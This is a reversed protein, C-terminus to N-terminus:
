VYHKYNESKKNEIKKLRQLLKDNAEVQKRLQDILEKNQRVLKSNDNRLQDVKAHLNIHERIFQDFSDPIKPDLV